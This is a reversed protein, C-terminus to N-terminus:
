ANCDIPGHVYRLIYGFFSDKNVFELM